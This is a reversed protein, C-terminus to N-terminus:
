FSVCKEDHFTWKRDALNSKWTASIIRLSFKLFFKGKVISTSSFMALFGSGTVNKDSRFRAWLHRGSSFLDGLPKNGCLMALLRDNSRNGDRIELFDCSCAKGTGMRGCRQISMFSLKLKIRTRPPSTIKWVCDMNDSYHRRNPFEPSMISGTKKIIQTANRCVLTLCVLIVIIVLLTSFRWGTKHFCLYVFM